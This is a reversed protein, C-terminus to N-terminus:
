DHRAAAVPIASARRPLSRSSSVSLLAALPGNVHCNPTRGSAGPALMSIAPILAVLHDHGVARGLQEPGDNRVSVAQTMARPKATNM